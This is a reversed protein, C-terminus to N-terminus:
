IMLGHLKKIETSSVNLLKAISIGYQYDYKKKMVMRIMYIAYITQVTSLRLQNPKPIKIFHLVAPGMLWFKEKFKEVQSYDNLCQYFEVIHRKKALYLLTTLMPVDRSTAIDVVKRYDTISMHRFLPQSYLLIMRKKYYTEFSADRKVVINPM